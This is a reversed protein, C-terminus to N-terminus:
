SMFCTVLSLSAIRFPAARPAIASFFLAQQRSKSPVSRTLEANAAYLYRNGPALAVGGQSALETTGSRDGQTPYSAFFSLQGNGARKYM